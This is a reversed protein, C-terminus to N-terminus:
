LDEDELLDDEMFDDQLPEDIGNDVECAAAGLALAAASGLLTMKATRTRKM